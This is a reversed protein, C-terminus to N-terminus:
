PEAWPSPSSSSWLPSSPILLIRLLQESPLGVLDRLQNQWRRGVVVCIVLAVTASVFYIGWSRRGPTRPGRDAFERWVFAFFVGVGYGVVATIGSVIGQFLSSRPLLSPTFSLCVLVLAVWAGPLTYQCRRRL